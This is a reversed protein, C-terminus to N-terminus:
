SIGNEIGKLQSALSRCQDQVYALDRYVGKYPGDPKDPRDPMIQKMKAELGPSLDYCHCCDFGLWWVRDDEGPEVKHCISTCEQDAKWADYDDVLHGDNKWSEAAYGRPFQEISPKNKLMSQRWKEWQERSDDHCFGAFTLGGHVSVDADNYVKEFLPHGSSVGCYGCLSGVRNRVILCPLGTAEDMFQMKDPEQGWQGEGWSSKDVTTFKLTKM